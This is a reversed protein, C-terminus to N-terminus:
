AFPDVITLGAIRQGAQLDETLLRDCGWELASAVILADYFSFGYARALSVAAEHTGIDIPRVPDLAVRLDSIAEAIADWEFGFKRRLVAACENLVQVSIVGGELIAQRAQESKAGAGQAYILLNTDLFATM